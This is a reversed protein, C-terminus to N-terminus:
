RLRALLRGLVAEEAVVFHEHPRVVEDVLHGSYDFCHAAAERHEKEVLSLIGLIFLSANAVANESFACCWHCALPEPVAVLGDEIGGFVFRGPIRIQHKWERRDLAIQRRAVAKALDDGIESVRETNLGLNNVPFPGFFDGDETTASAWCVM